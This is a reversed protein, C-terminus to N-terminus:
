FQPYKKGFFANIPMFFAQLPAFTVLFWNVVNSEHHSFVTRTPKIPTIYGIEAETMKGTPLIDHCIRLLAKSKAKARM